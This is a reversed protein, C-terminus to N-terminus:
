NDGTRWKVKKMIEKPTKGDLNQYVKEKDGRAALDYVRLYGIANMLTRFEPETIEGKVIELDKEFTQLNKGNMPRNLGTAPVDVVEETAESAIDQAEDGAADQAVAFGSSSLSLLLTAWIAVLLHSSISPTKM